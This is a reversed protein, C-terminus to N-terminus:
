LRLRMVLRDAGPGFYDKRVTQEATFGLTEYLLIAAANSPAVTLLVERVGIGRLRGLVEEMLRRGYGRGREDRTIGLGLIWSRSKDPRTGVLVYGKLATGDDLVLLHDPYVDYMQRLVFYPYPEEPFAERDLLALADLDAETVSRLRLQRAARRAPLATM